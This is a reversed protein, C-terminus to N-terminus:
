PEAIEEIRDVRDHQFALHDKDMEVEM